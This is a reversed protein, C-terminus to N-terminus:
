SEPVHDFTLMQTWSRASKEPPGKRTMVNRVRCLLPNEFKQMRDLMFVRKRLWDMRPRRRNEYARMAAVADGDSRALELGLVAADELAQCAGQAFVTPMAHAADGLLTVRGDGWVDASERVLVPTAAIGSAPTARVLERFMSPFGQAFDDVVQKPPEGAALRRKLRSNTGVTWSVQGDGLPWCGFGGGRPGWSMLVTNPPASGDSEALGRVPLSAAVPDGDGAVFSRIVSRAGDAGVLGAGRVESGDDLELVVSPGDIRYSRAAAGLRVPIDADKCAENLLRTLDSRRINVSQSGVARGIDAIPTSALFRGKHDWLQMADIRDGTALVAESLGVTDLATVANAWLNFATGAERHPDITREFVEVDWGAQRAALAAALGGVGGGAILLRGAEGAKGRTTAFTKQSATRSTGTAPNRGTGRLHPQRGSPDHSNQAARRNEM